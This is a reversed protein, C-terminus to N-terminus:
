LSFTNSVSRNFSRVYRVYNKKLAYQNSVQHNSQVYFRWTNISKHSLYNNLIVLWNITLFIRNTLNM